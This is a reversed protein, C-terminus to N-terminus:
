SIMGSCGDAKDRFECFSVSMRSGPQREVRTTGSHFGLTIKRLHDGLNWLYDWGWHEFYIGLSRRISRINVDQYAKHFLSDPSLFQDMSRVQARAAQALYANVGFLRCGAAVLEAESQGEFKWTVADTIQSGITDRVGYALVCAVPYLFHVPMTYHLYDFQSSANHPGPCHEIEVDPIYHAFVTLWRALEERLWATKYSGHPVRYAMEKRLGRDFRQLLALYRKARQHRNDIVGTQLQLIFKAEQNEVVKKWGDKRNPVHLKRYPFPQYGDDFMIVRQDDAFRRTQPTQTRYQLEAEDIVPEYIAHFDNGAVTPLVRFQCDRCTISAFQFGLATSMGNEDPVLVLDPEYQAVMAPWYGPTACSCLVAHGRTQELWEVIRARFLSDPHALIIKM